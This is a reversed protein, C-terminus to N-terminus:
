SGHARRSRRPSARDDCRQTTKARCRAAIAARPRIQPAHPSAPLPRPRTPSPPSRRRGAAAPSLLGRVATAQTGGEAGATPTASPTSRCPTPPFAAVAARRGTADGLLASPLHITYRLHPYRRVATRGASGANRQGVERAHATSTRSAEAGANWAAIKSPRSRDPAAHCGSPTRPPPACMTRRTESRNTPPITHRRRRLPAPHLDVYVNGSRPSRTAQAKPKKRRVSTLISSVGLSRLRSVRSTQM